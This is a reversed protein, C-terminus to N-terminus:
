ESEPRSLERSCVESIARRSDMPLGVSLRQSIAKITPEVGLEAALGEVTWGRCLEAWRALGASDKDDLVLAAYNAPRNLAEKSQAEGDHM